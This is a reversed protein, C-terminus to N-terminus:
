EGQRVTIVFNFTGRDPGDHDRQYAPNEARWALLEVATLDEKLVTGEHDVLTYLHKRRSGM